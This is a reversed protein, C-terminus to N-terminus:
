WGFGLQVSTLSSPRAQETLGSDLIRQHHILLDVSAGQGLFRVGLTAAPLWEVMSFALEDGIGYVGEPDIEGGQGIWAM